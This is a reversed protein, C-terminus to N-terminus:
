RVACNGSAPDAEHHAYNPHARRSQNQLSQVLSDTRYLVPNPDFFGAYAMDSRFGMGEDSM